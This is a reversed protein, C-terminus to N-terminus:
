SASGGGYGEKQEEEEKGHGTELLQDDFDIEKDRIPDLLRMTERDFRAYGAPGTDGGARSKEVTFYMRCREEEDPNIKDRRLHIVTDAVKTINRSGRTKGEDNTHSIAVIVIRLEKALLKLRQSLRDLKKREDQDDLGTALWTIHDLFIFEVNCSVALFRMTDLIGQEDEVDFGSYIYIRSDDNGVARIYSKFAEERNNKFDPHVYPYKDEYTAVARVTDGQDEEMHMLALKSNGKKLNYYEIARFLETKGIGEDGKLIIFQGRFMGILKSQLGQFPYEGIKEDLSNALSKEIDSFSNIVGSPTYRRAAKWAKVFEIGEDNELYGLPDKHRPMSVVYVKEFDFMPSIKANAAQGPEDNDM